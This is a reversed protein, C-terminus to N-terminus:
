RSGRKARKRSMWSMADMNDTVEIHISGDGTEGWIVASIVISLLEIDAIIISQQYRPMFPGLLGSIPCCIFERTTWNICSVRTLTADGSFWLVRERISPGSMRIHDPLLDLLSGGFLNAKGVKAGWVGRVFNIMNWFARWLETDECRAWMSMEDPDALLSGIPQALTEWVHNCNSYHTFLGRIEQLTKLLIVTNGNHFFPKSIAQVDGEINADPRSIHERVVNVHFGLFHFLYGMTRRNTKEQRQSATRRFGDRLIEGLANSSQELRDPFDVDIIMADDVFMHSVFPINGTLPSVPRYECHLKTILRDCSQFYGPSASWGFPLELRVLVVDNPLCLEDGPFETRLISVCDPHTAVRKFAENADSQTARRPIDPPNRELFEVRQALDVLSPNECAPYDAKDRFNNILRVDSILRM